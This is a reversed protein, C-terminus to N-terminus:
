VPFEYNSPFSNIIGQDDFWGSVESPHKRRLRPEEQRRERRERTEKSVRRPTKNFKSNNESKWIIMVNLDASTLLSHHLTLPPRRRNNRSVSSLKNIVIDGGKHLTAFHLLMMNKCNM